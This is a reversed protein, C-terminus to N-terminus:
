AMLWVFASISLFSMVTAAVLGAACRQELGYRAGLIPYISMMPAAAMLVGATRLAPDSIPLLSFCLWVLLPHLILKGILLQGVDLAMGGPKLGNLSAGIVFLAVPASAQALMDIARMVFTPPRVDLTAMLLALVIAILVPHRVLNRLTGLLATGVNGGNQQGLEALTLALPILLANEIMMGLALAVAAPGGVVLVVIPYGVFGSNSVSMGLGALASGSLNDKRVLRAFAYGLGFILLSGLGYGILYNWHIVEHLPRELLARIVLAPLALTIVFRGMGAVQDRSVLAARSSVFGIAILIFIPATIALISLM